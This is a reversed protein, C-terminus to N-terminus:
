ATELQRTTIKRSIGTTTLIFPNITSYLGREIVTIRNARRKPKYKEPAERYHHQPSQINPIAAHLLHAKKHNQSAYSYM